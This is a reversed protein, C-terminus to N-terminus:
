IVVVASRAPIVICYDFNRWAPDAVTRYRIVSCKVFQFQVTIYRDVEYNCIVLGPRDNSRDIYVSYPHHRAGYETVEAGVEQRFEGDWFYDRLETRLADMKKGYELTLPFDDLRGKFYFPEYSIIYRYMLCQNVM